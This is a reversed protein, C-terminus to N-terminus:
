TNRPNKQCPCWKLPWRWVCSDGNPDEVIPKDAGQYNFRAGPKTDVDIIRALSEDEGGSLVLFDLTGKIAYPFEGGNYFYCGHFTDPLEDTVLVLNGDFNELILSQNDENIDMLIHTIEGTRVKNIVESDDELTIARENIDVENSKEEQKM